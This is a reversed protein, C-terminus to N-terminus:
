CQREGCPSRPYFHKNRYLCRLINPCTARRLSLTSLFLATPARLTDPALLREGCPSRPYFHREGNIASNSKGPREGCPSRPYFNRLIVIVTSSPVRREGCPSRPYFHTIHPPTKKSFFDSEALLAHISITTRDIYLQNLSTARRLSLTSLFEATPRQINVTWHREGCPSRPYFNFLLNFLFRSGLREGCPSRPYFYHYMMCM